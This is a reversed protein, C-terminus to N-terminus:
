DRVSSPDPPALLVELSPCSWGPVEARAVELFSSYRADPQARLAARVADKAVGSAFHGEQRRFHAVRAKPAVRPEALIDKALQCVTDLERRACGSLTLLLFTYMLWREMAISHM